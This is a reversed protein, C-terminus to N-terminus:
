GRAVISESDFLYNGATTTGSGRQFFFLSAEPSLVTTSIMNLVLLKLFLTSFLGFIWVLSSVGFLLRLIMALTNALVSEVKGTIM